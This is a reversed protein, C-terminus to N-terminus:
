LIRRATAFDYIPGVIVGVGPRAAHIMQGNGAYIGVHQPGSASPRTFILDGKALQDRPVYSGENVQTFTTRSLGYGLKGFVYQTFGSCDFANPGTAGYVYPRGIFQYAYNVLADASQGSPPAVDGRNPIKSPTSSGNSTNTNAAEKSAVAEKAKEIADVTEKKIEPTELQNKIGRLSTIATSLQEISSNSNNIIDVFSSILQREFPVLQGIIKSKEEKRQVIIGEQEAVMKKFEDIKVENEKNLKDLEKTKNELSIVENDLKEKKSNLDKIMNKDINIVRGIAQMNSLFESFGNSKLLVELYNAQGGAKYTARLRGGLVEQKEKIQVKAKEIDKQVETIENKTKNIESNNKEVDAHLPEIKVTLADIKNELERIKGNVENLEKQGQEMKAKDGDSLPTASANYSIGFMLSLAILTSILKKNM